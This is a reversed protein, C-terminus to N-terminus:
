YCLYTILFVHLKAKFTVRQNKLDHSQGPSGTPIIMPMCRRPLGTTAISTLEDTRRAIGAAARCLLPAHLKTAVHSLLWAAPMFIRGLKLLQAYRLALSELDELYWSDPGTGTFLVKVGAKIADALMFSHLGYTFPEEFCRLMHELNNPIEVPRVTIEHHRTGFYRAAQEALELENYKGEYEAYRFTFTDITDGPVGLLRVLGAVILKSDVGGSLLVGTRVGPTYHRRLAQAYLDGLQEKAVESDNLMRSPNHHHWLYRCTPTKGRECTLVHGPPVKNIGEVFTWPAPVCGCALFADLALQNM